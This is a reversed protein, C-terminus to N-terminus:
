RVIVAQDAEEPTGPTVYAFEVTQNGGYQKLVLSAIGGGGEAIVSPLFYITPPSNVRLVTISFYSL